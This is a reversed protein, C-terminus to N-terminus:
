PDTSKEGILMPDNEIVRTKIVPSPAIVGIPL